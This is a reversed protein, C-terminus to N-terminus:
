QEFKFRWLALGFFALAYALLIGAPLLVSSFDLGRLIINQFGDMAWASPLLHGVASFAKGAIDLPFWAGGMASFLFMAVLCLVIVQDEKRAIAGILLGLCAAWLALAIMMLLVAGPQRLYDVGFVFQGLLVLITEQAFVVLFMALIHGGIVEARHIPTTLLRQLCRTKRELVLLMASNILGFIAFQVIMGSSSQTFGNIKENQDELSANGTAQVIQVTLPPEKWASAAETFAERFYAQRSANDEFGVQDQYLEVSIHASEVAGLLRGTVTDLANIAARGAPSNQDGIVELSAPQDAIVAQSYGSPLRVVAALEGESVLEGAQEVQDGELVIPRIVDSDALLTELSTSLLSGPDHDIWGVPLRPDEQQDANFVPGFVLGFFVTFLIPMVLLFLASKRDRLIQLIDKYALDLVRM